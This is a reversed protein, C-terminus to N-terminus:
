IEIQQQRAIRQLAPVGKATSAMVFTKSRSVPLQVQEVAQLLQPIQHEVAALVEHQPGEWAVQIDDVVVSQCVRVSM